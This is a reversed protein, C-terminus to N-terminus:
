FGHLAILLIDAKEFNGMTYYRMKKSVALKFEQIESM